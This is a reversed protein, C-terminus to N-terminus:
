DGYQVAPLESIGTLKQFYDFASKKEDSGVTQLANWFDELKSYAELAGPTGYLYTFLAEKDELKFYQELGILIGSLLGGNAKQYLDLLPSIKSPWADHLTAADSLLADKYYNTLQAFNDIKLYAPFGDLKLFRILADGWTIKVYHHLPNAVGARSPSHPASASPAAKAAATGGAALFAAVLSTKAARIKTGM